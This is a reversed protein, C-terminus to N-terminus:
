LSTTFKNNQTSQAHRAICVWFSVILKYFITTNIQLYFILKVGMSEQLYQLSICVEWKPYKSCAQNCLGLIITGVQPLSQHKDVHWFYVEDDVEKKLYQMKFFGAIQNVSLMKAWLELVLIKGSIPNTTFYWCCYLKWKLNNGLFVLSLIKWFILFGLKPAM